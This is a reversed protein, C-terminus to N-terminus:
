SPTPRTMARATGGGGSGPKVSRSPKFSTVSQACAAAATPWGIGTASATRARRSPATAAPWPSRSQASSGWHRDVRGTCPGHVEEVGVQVALQPQRQVAGLAQGRGAVGVGGEVLAFALLDEIAAPHHDTAAFMGALGAVVEGR